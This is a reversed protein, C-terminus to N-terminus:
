VLMETDYQYQVNKAM